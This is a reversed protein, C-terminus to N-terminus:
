LEKCQLQMGTASGNEITYLAVWSRASAGTTISATGEPNCKLYNTITVADTNPTVALPTTRAAAVRSYIVSTPASDYFGLKANQVLLGQTFSGMVGNHSSSYENISAGLASVDNVRQTNRSNRQLAPVALFVILIILGGIALVLMVEVITFGSDKRKQLLDRM